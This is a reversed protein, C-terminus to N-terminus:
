CEEWLRSNTSALTSKVRGVAADAIAREHGRMAYGAQFVDVTCPRSDPSNVIKLRIQYLKRIVSPASVNTLSLYVHRDIVLLARGAQYTEGQLPLEKQPWTAPTTLNGVASRNVAELQNSSSCSTTLAASEAQCADDQTDNPSQM